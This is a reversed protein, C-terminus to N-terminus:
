ITGQVNRKFIDRDLSNLAPDLVLLICIKHDLDILLCGKDSHVFFSQVQKKISRHNLKYNKHLPFILDAPLSAMTASAAEPIPNSFFTGAFSLAPPIRVSFPEQGTIYFLDAAEFALNIILRPEFLPTLLDNSSRDLEEGFFTVM